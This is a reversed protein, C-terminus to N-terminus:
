KLRSNVAFGPFAHSTSHHYTLRMLIFSCCRTETGKIRKKAWCKPVKFLLSDFHSFSVDDSNFSTRLCLLHSGIKKGLGKHHDPLSEVRSRRCNGHFLFNSKSFKQEKTLRLTLSSALHVSFGFELSM